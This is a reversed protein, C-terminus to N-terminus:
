GRRKHQSEHQQLSADKAARGRTFRVGSVQTQKNLHHPPLVVNKTTGTNLKVKPLRGRVRSLPQQQQQERHHQDDFPLSVGGSEDVDSNSDRSEERHKQEEYQKTMSKDVALEPHSTGDTAATVNITTCVNLIVKPPRGRVRSLLQQQEHRHQDDFPLSEGGSEEVDSNSNRPENGHKQEEYQKTMSKHVALQPHSTDETATASRSRTIMRQKVSGRTQQPTQYPQNVAKLEHDTPREEISNEPEQKQDVQKDCHRQEQSPQEVFLNVEPPSESIPLQHHVSTESLLPVLQQHNFGSQPAEEPSPNLCLDRSSKGFNSASPQEVILNAEPTSESIPLQHHVSTESLLPVLQQHNFRSQPAEEPSPNLCLDHSSKGFNSASPQEVILNAETTSESIPLQHRVSTESLLPVLQQHNFGSQPAEEPSPNLCLDHSSTGFNSASPQEVILNVDPPSESIPLQHHDSTESLLPVLQQHNFGSQPAEEPSPNLYLDHSSKGFNSASPQEVILNAEPTSESIPLQRRVSTESLLPVLQQHNFGSQSAEELFTNMCLDHAIETSKPQSEPMVQLGCLKAQKNQRQSSEGLRTVDIEPPRKLNPVLYDKGVMDSLSSVFEILQGQIKNMKWLLKICEDKSLLLSGFYVPEQCALSSTAENEEQKKTFHEMIDSLHKINCCIDMQQKRLRKQEKALENEQGQKEGQKETVDIEMEQSQLIQEVFDEVQIDQHKEKEAAGNQQKDKEFEEEIVENEVGGQPEEETVEEKETKEQNLEEELMQAMLADSQWENLEALWRDEGNVGHLEEIVEDTVKNQEEISDVEQEEAQKQDEIRVMNEGLAQHDDESLESGREHGLFEDAQKQNDVVGQVSQGHVQTQEEIAEIQLEETHIQSDSLEFNQSRNIEIQWDQSQYQDEFEDPQHWQERNEENYTENEVEAVVNQERMSQGGEVKYKKSVQNQRTGKKRHKLVSSSDFNEERLKYCNTHTSVIDGKKVLADLHHSLFISHAPPLDQYNEKVFQSIHGESSGEEENLELIAREIMAAYTPHDPTHTSFECLKQKIEEQYVLASPNVRAMEVIIADFKKHKKGELTAFAPHM